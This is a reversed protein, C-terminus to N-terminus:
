CAGSKRGSQAGPTHRPAIASRSRLSGRARVIRAVPALLLPPSSPTVGSAPCGSSLSSHVAVVEGLTHPLDERHRALFGRTEVVLVHPRLVDQEAEDALTLADGRRNELVQADIEVLNLLLDLLGDLLPFRRLRGAGIKGIRRARLLDELEGHALRALEVVAVDAGLVQQEPKEALLLANGRLHQGVRADVEVGRARLRQTQEAGLHRLAPRRGGAPAGAWRRRM